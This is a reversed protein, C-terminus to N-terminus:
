NKIFPSLNEESILFSEIPQQVAEKATYGLIAEAAPNLKLIQHNQAIIIIGDKVNQHIHRYILNEREQIALDKQPKSNTSYIASNRHYIPCDIAM